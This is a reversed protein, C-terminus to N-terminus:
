YQSSWPMKTNAVGIGEGELGLAIFGVEIDSNFQNIGWNLSEPINSGTSVRDSIRVCPMKLTIEEGIGTASVGLFEGCWLGAGILPTDGIRGPPRGTCGGTSSAVVILGSKDRAIAGVTDNGSPNTSGDVKSRPIEQTDAFERAGRGALMNIKEDLIKEAVLIPNKTHELCTVAGFRGDNTMIAADLQVSGDSRIRGGTGANLSPDNEMMVVAAIAADLASAGGKLKAWGVSTAKDVGPQDKAGHGAGGHCVIASNFM